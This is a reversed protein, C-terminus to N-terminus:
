GTFHAHDYDQQLHTSLVVRFYNFSAVFFYYFYM